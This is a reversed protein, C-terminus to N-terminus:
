FSSISKMVRQILLTNLWKEVEVYYIDDYLSYKLDFIKKLENIHEISFCICFGSQRLEKKCNSIFRNFDDNENRSKKSQQNGLTDEKIYNIM